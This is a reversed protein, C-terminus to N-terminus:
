VLREWQRQAIDRLEDANVQNPSHITVYMVVDGRRARAQGYYFQENTDSYRSPEAPTSYSGNASGQLPHAGPALYSPVDDVATSVHDADFQVLEVRYTTDNKKWRVIADRRFGEFLSSRFRSDANTYTMAVDGATAWGSSDGLGDGLDEGDAPKSILLKRLDGDIGLPAPGADAAGKADLVNGPYQPLSVKLAPLPTEPRGAQIAYGVGGGILPGLVLAALLLRATRPRRPPAAPDAPETPEAPEAPETPETPQAPETAETPEAPEAPETTM